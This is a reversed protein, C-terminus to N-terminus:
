CHGHPDDQSLRKSMVVVPDVGFGRNEYFSIVPENSNRVMLELKPCGRKALQLEAHAMLQRGFGQGRHGPRVALYYIWGRHGDYGAMCSALLEGNAEGVFFLDPSDVVKRQIDAIPNNWPVLLRCDRWLKLVAPEDSAEFIRIVFEV